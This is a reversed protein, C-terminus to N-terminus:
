FDIYLNLIEKPTINLKESETKWWNKEKEKIKDLKKLNSDINEKIKKLKEQDKDIKKNIKIYENVINEIETIQKKNLKKNSM